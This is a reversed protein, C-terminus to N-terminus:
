VPQRSQYGKLKGFPLPKFLGYTRINFIYDRDSKKVVHM